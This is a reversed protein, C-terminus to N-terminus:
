ADATLWQLVALRQNLLLELGETVDPYIELHLYEQMLEEQQPAECRLGLSHSAFVLAERTVQWFDAYHSMLAQLWTYELQRLRWLRSLAEGRGPFIREAKGQVSLPNFLTGYADFVWAKIPTHM